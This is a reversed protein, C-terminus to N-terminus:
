ARRAARMRESERVVKGVNREFEARDEYLQFVKSGLSLNLMQMWMKVMPAMGLVHGPQLRDRRKLLWNTVLTRVQPEYGSQADADIAIVFPRDKDVAEDLATLTRVMMEGLLYGGFQMRMVDATRCNVVIRAERPGRIWTSGDGLKEVTVEPQIGDGM